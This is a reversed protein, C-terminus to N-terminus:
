EEFIQLLTKSIKRGKNLIMIHTGGKIVRCDSIYKIPFVVDNEGHLHVINDIKETRNWTIMKELSWDLYQKNRVHLYEQYLSLRKQTKPGISFKTLDEVSLVLSTPILKYAKTFRALKMRRPLEEKSKVSSIIILKKLKLFRSMEQVVVGGFSVGILIPNEEKVRRAMKEAYADLSEGKEPILWELIHTVYNEPFKINKFIEGGAALGPVFYIHTKQSNM